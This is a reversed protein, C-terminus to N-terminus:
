KVTITVSKNAKDEIRNFEMNDGNPYVFKDMSDGVYEVCYNNGEADSIVSVNGNKYSYNVKNLALISM